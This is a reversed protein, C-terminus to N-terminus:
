GAAADLGRAIAEARAAHLAEGIAPGRLGRALADASVAASDVSRALDLVRLLRPRQPYPSQELGGRGRADCECALLLDAFRAPRRLGDCREVLRLLAAPGFSTSRHVNGHERATVD